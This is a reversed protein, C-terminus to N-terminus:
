DSFSIYCNVSLGATCVRAFLHLLLFDVDASEGYVSRLFHVAGQVAATAQEVCFRFLGETQESSIELMLTDHLVASHTMFIRPSQM